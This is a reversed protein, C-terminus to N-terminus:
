HVQTTNKTLRYPFDGARKTQKVKFGRDINPLLNCEIVFFCLPEKNCKKHGNDFNNKTRLKQPEKFM